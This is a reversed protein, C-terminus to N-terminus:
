LDVSTQQITYKLRNLKLIKKKPNGKSPLRHCNEILRPDVPVNIEEPISLVTTELENDKISPPIGSIELYKRRSYQENGFSTERLM